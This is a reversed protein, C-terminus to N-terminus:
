KTHNWLIKVDVLAFSLCLLRTCKDSVSDLSIIILNQQWIYQVTNTQGPSSPLATYPPIYSFLIVTSLLHYYVYPVKCNLGGKYSVYLEATCTGKVSQMKAMFWSTAYYSFKKFKRTKFLIVFVKVVLFHGLRSQAMFISYLINNQWPLSLWTKVLLVRM